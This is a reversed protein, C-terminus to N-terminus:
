CPQLDALTLVLEEIARQLVGYSQDADNILISFVVEPYQVPQLYGALAAIGRMSGTKAYLRGDALTGRFRNRLTGRQGAVALSQRYTTNHPSQAMYQLLQTLVQPQISNRRSLGSGDALVVQQPDIGLTQLTQGFVALSATLLNREQRRGGETLSSSSPPQALVLSRLLAEAYLNQSSQNAVQILEAIPPSQHNIQASASANDTSTSRQAGAATQLSWRNVTLGSQQLAEALTSIFAQGPQLVSIAVPESASGVRLAGEVYLRSGSTAQQALDQELQLYEPADVAVTRSRNEVQWGEAQSPTEWIVALPQGLQQPQLTLNIANRDLILRNTPAGYGAQRDITEWSSPWFQRRDSDNGVLQDIQTIGQQRLRQALRQALQELTARSLSPDGQGSVEVITQGSPQRSADRRVDLTTTLRTTPGLRELVAATILLKQTSAPILFHDAQHQWVPTQDLTEVAIGWRATDLQHRTQIRRLTAPLDAPCTAALAVSAPGGAIMGGALLVTLTLWRPRIASLRQLLKTKM